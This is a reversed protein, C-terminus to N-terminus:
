VPHPVDFAAAVRRLVNTEASMAASLEAGLDPHIAEVGRTRQVWSGVKALVEELERNVRKFDAIEDIRRQGHNMQLSCAIRGNADYVIIKM